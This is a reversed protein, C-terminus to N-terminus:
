GLLTEQVKNQEGGMEQKREGLFRADRQFAGVGKEM